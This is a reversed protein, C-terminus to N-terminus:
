GLKVLPRESRARDRQRFQLPDQHRIRSSGAANDGPAFVLSGVAGTVPNRVVV